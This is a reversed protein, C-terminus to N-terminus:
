SEEITPPEQKEYGILEEADWDVNENLFEIMEPDIFRKKRNQSESPVCNPKIGTLKSVTELLDKTGVSLLDEYQVVWLDEVNKFNKTSMFNDIKAKRLQLINDYPEGSGDNRMEYFPQHESYHTKEVKTETFPRVHCSIVDKYAFKQQCFHPDNKEVDTIELDKGVREMTWPKTLFDKWELHM